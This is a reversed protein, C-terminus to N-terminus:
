CEQKAFIWVLQEKTESNFLPKCRDDLIYTISFETDRFLGLGKYTTRDLSSVIMVHINRNDIEKKIQKM